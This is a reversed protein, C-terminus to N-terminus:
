LTEKKTRRNASVGDCLSKVSHRIRRVSKGDAQLASVGEGDASFFSDRTAALIGRM